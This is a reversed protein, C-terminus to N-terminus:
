EHGEKGRFLIYVRVVSRLGAEAFGTGYHFSFLIFRVM